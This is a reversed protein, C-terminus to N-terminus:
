VAAANADEPIVYEGDPQALFEKDTMGLRELLAVYDRNDLNAPFTQAFTETQYLTVMRTIPELPPQITFIDYKM